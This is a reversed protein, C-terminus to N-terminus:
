AANFWEKVGRRSLCVVCSVALLMMACNLLEPGWIYPLLFVGSVVCFPVAIKRAVRVGHWLGYPILSLTLVVLLNFIYSFFVEGPEMGTVRDTSWGIFMLALFGALCGVAYSVAAPREGRPIPAMPTAIELGTEAVAFVPTIAVAKPQDFWIEATDTYILGAAPLTILGLCIAYIPFGHPMGGIILSLIVFVASFLAMLHRTWGRFKWVIFILCLAALCIIILLGMFATSLLFDAAGLYGSGPGPPDLANDTATNVSFFKVGTLFLALIDALFLWLAATVQWPWGAQPPQTDSM